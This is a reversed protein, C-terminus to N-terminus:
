DYYEILVIRGGLVASTIRHGHRAASLILDLTRQGTAAVRAIEAETPRTPAPRPCKCKATGCYPCTAGAPRSM